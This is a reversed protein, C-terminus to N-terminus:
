QNPAHDRLLAVIAQHNNASAFCEVRQLSFPQVTSHYTANLYDKMDKVDKFSDLLVKVVRIHGKMAALSLASHPRDDPTPGRAAARDAGLRLLEEVCALDGTSSAQELATMASDLFTVLYPEGFQDLRIEPYRQAFGTSRDNLHRNIVTETGTVTEQHQKGEALQLATKGADDRQHVWSFWNLKGAQFAGLAALILMEAADTKGQEAALMLATRGDLDTATLVDLAKGKGFYSAFRAIAQEPHNAQGAESLKRLVRNLRSEPSPAPRAPQGSTRSQPARGQRPRGLGPIWDLISELRWEFRAYAFGFALGGLHAASAVGTHFRDGSLALLVPHLDWILYFLVLWRMEVSFWIIRIPERPFHMAYLMVVAMVAGSAGIAPISSRTYLEVGVFALAAVVAATLYFLLFERWGYMLELTCGFWYLFLMNFVIHFLGGRDHCFAHTVLRWIQAGHVVKKTDLEFWEQLISIRMPPVLDPDDDELVDKYYPYKKKLRELTAPDDGHETLQRDLEPDQQRLMELPSVQVQRVVLIQLIFVVVNAAILYKVVPTISYLGWEAWRGGDDSNRWYDRTAIGM